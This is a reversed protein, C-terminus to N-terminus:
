AMEKVHSEIFAIETDDLGYKRYLQRDIDAVSQSWDIDSAPTFDQLPVFRWVAKKNDQTVKLIGLMTRVFKSQVYKMLSEVECLTKFAGMSLFTQTHAMGPLGIEPVSMPEGFRGSGNAKPFLLKYADLNAHSAIFRREIFLIQRENNRRGLVRVYESEKSPLTNFFIIDTLKEFINSTLDFDHGKSILPVVKGKFTTTMERIEPHEQYLLATFKYSEPSFVIDSISENIIAKVKTLISNLESYSTFVEISGYNKSLDRYTVAVGGKIDKNPFVLASNPEYYLVKLHEDSLMKKNWSKPTKGANFLFRAPTILEVRDSIDYIEDMFNYYIPNDSTGEQEEQYPPNGIIFDFKM